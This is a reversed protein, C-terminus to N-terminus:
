TQLRPLLAGIGSTNTEYWEVDKSLLDQFLQERLERAQLAGFSMWCICCLSYSVWTVIGLVVVATAHTAIQSKLEYGDIRGGGFDTFAGFIKGFIIALTPVIVGSIVALILAFSLIPAHKRTTFNFLAKWTPASKADESLNIEVGAHYVESTNDM